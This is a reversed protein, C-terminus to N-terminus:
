KDIENNKSDFNLKELAEESIKDKLSDDILFSSNGLYNIQTYVKANRDKELIAFVDYSNDSKSTCDECYLSRPIFYKGSPTDQELLCLTYHKETMGLSYSVSITNINELIKIETKTIEPLENLCFLKKFCLDSPHLSDFEYNDCSLKRKVSKNFFEIASMGLRKVGTLHSFSSRDFLLEFYGNEHIYLFTKNLLEKKYIKSSEIIKNLIVKNDVKM